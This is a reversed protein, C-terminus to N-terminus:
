NMPPSGYGSQLYSKIQHSAATVTSSHEKNGHSFALQITNTIKKKM